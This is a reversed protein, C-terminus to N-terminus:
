GFSSDWCKETIDTQTQKTGYMHIHWCRRSAAITWNCTNWQQLSKTQPKDTFNTWRFKLLNTDFYFYLQNLLIIAHFIPIGGFEITHYPLISALHFLNAYCFSSFLKGREWHIKDIPYGAVPCKISLDTGSIGTIKPMERIFPLGYVNVKASHSVRFTAWQSWTFLRHIFFFLFFFCWLFRM